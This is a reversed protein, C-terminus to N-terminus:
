KDKFTRYDDCLVEGVGMCSLKRLMHEDDGFKIHNGEEDIIWVYEKAIDDTFYNILLPNITHCVIDNFDDEDWNNLLWSVLEDVSKEINYDNEILTELFSTDLSVVEDGKPVRGFYIKM